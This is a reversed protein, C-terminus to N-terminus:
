EAKTYIELEHFTVYENLNQDQHAFKVDYSDHVMLILYRYTEAEAPVSVTMFEPEAATLEELSQIRAENGANTACYRCWRNENPGNPAEEYNGLKVWASQDNPDSNTGYITVSSPLKNQYERDWIKKQPLTSTQSTGDPMIVCGNLMAYLRVQAVQKPTGFDVIFPKDFAHPGALFTNYVGEKPPYVGKVNGDFLYEIGTKAQTHVQVEATSTFTFNEPALKEVKYAAVNEWVKQKVAYGAFDETRIIVDYSEMDQKPSLQMRGAGGSFVYTGVLLTDLESTFPSVGMYFVHVLGKAGVPVDWTMDFGKWSPKIQLKDFFAVPGSDKTSFTVKVPDSEVNNRDCLTVFAEVNQQAENFGILEISDCAYSATRLVDEGQANRYRVKVGMVDGDKPLQYHMIAGGSVPTFSFSDSIEVNFTTSEDDKCCCFTCVMLLVYIFRKVM